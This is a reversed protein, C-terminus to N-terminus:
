SESEEIRKLENVQKELEETIRRYASFNNGNNDDCNFEKPYIPKGISVRIKNPKMFIRGKPWAKYTGKIFAPVIPLGTEASTMAPGRKFPQIEGTKSRTGEPYIILSRSGNGTFERCAALYEIMSKRDANRDIPILNMLLNLYYKRKENDFFYDKAAMMAFNKFPLGSAVMLVGSDMHSNHNSCFIFSAAPINKRGKVTLPCYITFLIKCYVEFNKKILSSILSPKENLYSYEPSLVANELESRISSM